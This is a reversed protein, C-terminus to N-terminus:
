KFIFQIENDGSMNLKERAYQEITRDDSRFKQVQNQLNQVDQQLNGIEQDINTGEKWLRYSAILGRDGIMSFILLVAIYIYCVKIIWQGNKKGIVMSNLEADYWAV